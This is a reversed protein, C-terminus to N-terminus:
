GDYTVGTARGLGQRFCNSTGSWKILVNLEFAKDWDGEEDYVFQATVANKVAEVLQENALTLVEARTM